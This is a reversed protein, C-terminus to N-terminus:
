GAKLTPLSSEVHYITLLITFSWFVATSIYLITIYLILIFFISLSKICFMLFFYKNFFWFKLKQFFRYFFLSFFMHFVMLNIKFFCFINKVRKENRENVFVHNQYFVLIPNKTVGKGGYIFIPFFAIVKLFYHDPM